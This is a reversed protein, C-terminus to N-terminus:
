KEPLDAENGRLYAERANYRVWLDRLPKLYHAPFPEGDPLDTVEAMMELYKISDGAVELEMDDMDELICRLGFTLNSFVLQRYSEIEQTSFPVNHILRMQQVFLPSDYQPTPVDVFCPM